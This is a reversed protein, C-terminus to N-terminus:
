VRVDDSVGGRKVRKSTRGRRSSQSGTSKWKFKPDVVRGEKGRIYRERDIGGPEPRLANGNEGKAREWHEGTPLQGLAWCSPSHSGSRWM